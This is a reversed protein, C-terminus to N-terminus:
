VHQLLECVKEADGDSDLGIYLIFRVGIVAGSFGRMNIDAAAIKETLEAAIGPANDCEVRVSHLTSTVNFGLVSAAAIEADGRLPTVFVVGTGPNEPARRAICFDLDAGADRLGALVRALGGPEDPISAAWVNVRDVILDM